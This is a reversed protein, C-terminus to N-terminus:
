RYGRPRPQEVVWTQNRPRRAVMRDRSRDAGSDLGVRYKDGEPDVVGGRGCRVPREDDVVAPSDEVRALLVNRRPLRAAEDIIRKVREMNKHPTKGHESGIDYKRGSISAQRTWRWGEQVERGSRYSAGISILFHERNSSAIDIVTADAVGRLPWRDGHKWQRGRLLRVERGIRM